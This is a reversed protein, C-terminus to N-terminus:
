FSGKAVCDLCILALCTTEINPVGQKQGKPTLDTIWGGSPEQLQTPKVATNQLQQAMQVRAFLTGALATKYLSFLNKGKDAADMGLVNLPTNWNNWLLAAFQKAKDTDGALVWWHGILALEDFNSSTQWAALYFPPANNDL